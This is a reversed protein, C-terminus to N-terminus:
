WDDRLNRLQERRRLARLIREAKVLVVASEWRVQAREALRSPHQGISLLKECYCGTPRFSGYGQVTSRGDCINLARLACEQKEDTM